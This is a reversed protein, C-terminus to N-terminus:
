RLKQKAYKCDIINTHIHEIKNDRMTIKCENILGKGKMECQNCFGLGTFECWFFNEELKKGCKRCSIQPVDIDLLWGFSDRYELKYEM